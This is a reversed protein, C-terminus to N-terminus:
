RAQEGTTAGILTLPGPEDECCTCYLAVGATLTSKAGKRAMEIYAATFRRLGNDKRRWGFVVALIFVQAPELQITATEWKGEVHPLKEIFSCVDAVHSASFAFSWDKKKLDRLHREAAQRVYKCHRKGKADAAAERAFALAEAAYDRDTGTSPTPLSAM